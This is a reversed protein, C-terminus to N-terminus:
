APAKARRKQTSEPVAPRDAAIRKLLVSAPEDSADQPVLEGRFARALIARRLAVGRLLSFHVAGELSKIVSREAEVEAVIRRQDDMTPIPVSLRSVDRQDIKPMSGAIGEAARRFYLRVPRSKLVIELFEPLVADSVRVRILLDPFIAWDPPGQYLAATGVLEPTNSREILIDGPELWLDKIRAPDATTMKTNAESFDSQTVASLTLTRIGTGDRSAKASHGNRLPERLLSALPACERHRSSGRDYVAGRVGRLRRTVAQLLAEGADLRSLHEEIAAGIRRQEGLPPVPVRQRLIPGSKARTHSGTAGEVSLTIWDRFSPSSLYWRLYRALDPEGTRFILYEPSAIQPVDRAAGVIWVRNIRPNIKCLLVDHPAVAQKASGIESGDVVEPVGTAFAPVSYLEYMQQAEPAVSSRVQVGLDALPAWTWGNPLESM